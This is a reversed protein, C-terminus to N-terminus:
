MSRNKIIESIKNMDDGFRKVASKLMEIESETWKGSFCDYSWIM